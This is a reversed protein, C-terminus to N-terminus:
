REFCSKEYNGMRWEEYSKIDNAARTYFFKKKEIGKIIKKQQVNAAESCM